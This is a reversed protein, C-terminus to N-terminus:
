SVVGLAAAAPSDGAPSLTENTENQKLVSGIWTWGDNQKPGKEALGSEQLKKLQTQVKTQGAGAEERLKRFSM